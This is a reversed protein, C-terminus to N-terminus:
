AEDHKGVVASRGNKEVIGFAADVFGRLSLPNAM